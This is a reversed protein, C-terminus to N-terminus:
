IRIDIHKGKGQDGGQGRKKKRKSDNPQDRSPKERTIAANMKQKLQQVQKKEHEAVVKGQYGQMIQAFEDRKNQVSAERTYDTVRHVMIQNDIGKISM